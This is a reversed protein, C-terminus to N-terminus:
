CSSSELQLSYRTTYLLTESWGSIAGTFSSSPLFTERCRLLDRLTLALTLTSDTRSWPSEVKAEAQNRVRLCGDSFILNDGSIQGSDSRIVCRTDAWNRHAPFLQRTAGNMTAHTRNIHIDNWNDMMFTFTRTLTDFFFYQGVKRIILEDDGWRFYAIDGETPQHISFAAADCDIPQVSCDQSLKIASGYWPPEYKCGDVDVRTVLGVFAAPITYNLVVSLAFLEHSLAM